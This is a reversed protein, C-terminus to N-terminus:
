LPHEDERWQGERIMEQRHSHVPNNQPNGWREHYKKCSKRSLVQWAALREQTKAENGPIIVYNAVLWNGKQLLCKYRHRSVYSCNKEKNSEIQFYSKNYAKKYAKGQKTQNRCTHCFTKHGKNLLHGKAACRVRGPLTPKNTEVTKKKM